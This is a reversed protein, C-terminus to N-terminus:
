KMLYTFDKPRTMTESYVTGFRDTVKIILTSSASSAKVKFLHATQCTVFSSTPVAGVNLRKAEYSIIHLPDLDSVRTVTLAKGEETVDIKWSTDYGWVNILVENNQNSTAYTGAYEALAADTSNPAYTAATIYIKNLDYSRFQYTKDYGISKYYWQMDTGNMSWVGYGGPSGDKCIQNGAYGSKGTWWWTACVAATNHEMISSSNQVTYNIHTHGSLVHVTAYGDLCAVFESGNDLTIEDIQTGNSLISPNGNLPIHMAVVIPTSKAVTALDKKLWAIQAATIAGNYNRSGIVGDAGGTNIYVIDDLVIYHINGLNFSYYTPGIVRKYAQEALWDGASYPDNDHNGTVNFVTCDIKHMWILYEPLAFSNAYWYQDWSMDGLTLGYIKTGQNKAEAILANVDNLFGSSFQSLDDNRDALHLDALTLLVHKSNDVQTLAFDAQEVTSAGGTLRKFFQPENESNAVEYNGPVSIFVYGQKKESALYYIGKENTTTVEYGDSVVVGSIGEGECSVVGKVTMGDVDPVTIGAVLSINLVGLAMSEEGRIVSLSYKGSTVEDPLTFIIYTDAVTKLELSFTQTEDTQSTLKVLDGTEFGNAELTIDGGVTVEISVPISVNTIHLGAETNTVSGDSCGAFTVSISVVLVALMAFILKVLFYGGITSTKLKQNM